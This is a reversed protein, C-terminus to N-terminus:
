GNQAEKRRSLWITLLAAFALMGCSLGWLSAPILQLMSDVATLDLTHFFLDIRSLLLLASLAAYMCFLSARDRRLAALVFLLLGAALLTHSFRDITLGLFALQAADSAASSASLCRIGLQIGTGAQLLILAVAAIGALIRLAKSGSIKKGSWFAFSMSVATICTSTASLCVVATQAAALAADVLAPLLFVQPVFVMCSLIGRVSSRVKALETLKGNQLLLLLALPLAPMIVASGPRTWLAYMSIATLLAFVIGRIYPSRHASDASACHGREALIHGAAEKPTGLSLCIQAESKGDAAAGSFLEEMDSVIDSLEAHPLRLALYFRLKKIYEKQTM